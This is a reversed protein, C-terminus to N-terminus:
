QLEFGLLSMIISQRLCDSSATLIIDDLYLLIYAMNSGQKYICLSHDFKSHTFGISAVFYAFQQYRARLAQNLGYLFKKLLCVHDPYHKDRFGVPQHTYVVIENLQGHLFANKVNM